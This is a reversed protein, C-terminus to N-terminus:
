RFYTYTSNDTDMDSEETDSPQGVYIRDYLEYQEEKRQFRKGTESLGEKNTNEMTDGSAETTPPPPILSTMMELTEEKPDSQRIQLKSFAVEDIDTTQEMSTQPKPDNFDILSKSQERAKAKTGGLDESSWHM